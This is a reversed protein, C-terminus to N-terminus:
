KNPHWYIGAPRVKAAKTPHAFGPSLADHWWYSEVPRYRIPARVPAMTRDGDNHIAETASIVFGCHSVLPQYTGADKRMRSADGPKAEWFVVAGKRARPIRYWGSAVMDKKLRTITVQVEQVLNFLKLISSTYFSCSVRGDRVINTRKGNVKAWFARFLPTGVSAEVLALYTETLLPEVVVGPIKKLTM